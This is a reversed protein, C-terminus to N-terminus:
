LHHAKINTCVQPLLLSKTERQLMIQLAAHQSPSNLHLLVFLLVCAPGKRHGKSYSSSAPHRWQDTRNRWLKPLVEPICVGASFYRKLAPSTLSFWGASQGFLLQPGQSQYKERLETKWECMGNEKAAKAMAWWKGLCSEQRRGPMSFADAAKEALRADRSMGSGLEGTSSTLSTNEQLVAIGQAGQEGWGQASEWSHRHVPLGLIWGFGLVFMRSRCKHQQDCRQQQARETPVHTCQALSKADQNLIKGGSWCNRIGHKDANTMIGTWTGEWRLEQIKLRELATSTQLETGRFCNRDSMLECEFQELEAAWLKAGRNIRPLFVRTTCVWLLDKKFAAISWKLLPFLTAPSWCNLVLKHQHKQSGM